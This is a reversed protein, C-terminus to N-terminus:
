LRYWEHHYGLYYTRNIHDRIINGLEERVNKKYKHKLDIKKMHDKGKM